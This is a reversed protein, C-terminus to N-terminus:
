FAFPVYSISAFLSLWRPRRQIYDNAYQLDVISCNNHQMLKLNVVIAYMIIGIRTNMLLIAPLSLLPYYQLTYLIQRGGGACGDRHRAAVQLTRVSKGPGTPTREHCTSGPYQICM